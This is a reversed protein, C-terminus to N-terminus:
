GSNDVAAPMPEDLYGRIVAATSLELTFDSIQPKALTLAM